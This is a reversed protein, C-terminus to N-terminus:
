RGVPSALGDADLGSRPRETRTRATRGGLRHVLLARLVYMALHSAAYGLLTRAVAGLGRQEGALQRLARESRAISVLQNGRQREVAPRERRDHSHVMLEQCLLATAFRLALLVPVLSPRPGREATLQTPAPRA